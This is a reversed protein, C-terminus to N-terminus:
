GRVPRRLRHKNALATERLASLSAEHVGDNWIEFNRGRGVFVAKKDLNAAARFAKPLVIRGTSDYSLLQAQGFIMRELAELGEDYEGGAGDFMDQYYALTADDGGELCAGDLSPWVYVADLGSKATKTRFSAPVSVRGKADIANTVTSLFMAKGLAVGRLRYIHSLM